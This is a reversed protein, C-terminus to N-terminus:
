FKNMLTHFCRADFKGEESTNSTIRVLYEDWRRQFKQEIAEELEEIKFSKSSRFSFGGGPELELFLRQDEMKMPDRMLVLAAWLM